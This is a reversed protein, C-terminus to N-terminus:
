SAAQASADVRADGSVAIYIAEIIRAWRRIAPDRQVGTSAAGSIEADAAIQASQDIAVIEDRIEAELASRTEDTSLLFAYWPYRATVEGEQNVTVHAKLSAPFVWLFKAPKRYKMDLKGERMEVSDLREDARATAAAYSELSAATRVSDASRVVYETNEDMKGRLVNFEIGSDSQANGSVSADGDTGPTRDSGPSTNADGATDADVSVDTDTAGTSASGNVSASGSTNLIQAHATGGVLALSFLLALSALKMMFNQHIPFLRGRRM